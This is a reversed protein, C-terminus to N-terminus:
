KHQGPVSDQCSRATPVGDHSGALFRSAWRTLLVGAAAGVALAVAMSRHTTSQAPESTPAPDALPDPATPLEDNFRDVLRTGDHLQTEILQNLVDNVIRVLVMVGYFTILVGILRNYALAVGMGEPDGGFLRNATWYLAAGYDTPRGQCQPGSPCAADERWAVVAAVMALVVASGGLMLPLDRLPLRGRSVPTLPRDGLRWTVWVEPDTILQRVAGSSRIAARAATTTVVQAPVVVPHPEGGAQKGHGRAVDLLGIAARPDKAHLLAVSWERSLVQELGSAGRRPRVGVFAGIMRVVGATMLLAVWGLAAVPLGLIIQLWPAPFPVGFLSLWGVVVAAVALLALPPVAFGVVDWYRDLLRLVRTSADKGTPAAEDEAPPPPELLCFCQPSRWLLRGERDALHLAWRLPLRSRFLGTIGRPRLAKRAQQGGDAALVERVAAARAKGGFLTM